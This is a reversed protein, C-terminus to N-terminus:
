IKMNENNAIRRNKPDFFIPSYTQLIVVMCTRQGRIVNGVTNIHPRSTNDLFFCCTQAKNLL